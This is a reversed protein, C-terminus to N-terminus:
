QREQRHTAYPGTAGQVGLSQLTRWEAESHVAEAVVVLGASHSISVIAKVFQQNGLQQDIDRIFSGDIKLYDLRLDYLAPVRGFQRGFHEIGLKCGFEQALDSLPQLRGYNGELGYENVELWLRGAVKRNRELMQRMQALFFPDDISSSSLNVASEGM